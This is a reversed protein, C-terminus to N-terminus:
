QPNCGGSRFFRHAVRKVALHRTAGGAGVSTNKFRVCTSTSAASFRDREKRSLVVFSSESAFESAHESIRMEVLHRVSQLFERHRDLLLCMARIPCEEPVIDRARCCLNYKISHCATPLHRHYPTNIFPLDRQLQHSVLRQADPGLKIDVTRLSIIELEAVIEIDRLAPGSIVSILASDTLSPM